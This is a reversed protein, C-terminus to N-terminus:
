GNMWRDHKQHFSHATYWLKDYPEKLSITAQIQPFPTSNWGMLEEDVNIATAKQKAQELKSGLDKLADVVVKIDDVSRPIQNSLPSPHPFIVRSVANMFPLTSLASM